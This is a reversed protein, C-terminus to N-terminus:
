YVIIVYDSYYFFGVNVFGVSTGWASGMLPGLFVIPASDIIEYM